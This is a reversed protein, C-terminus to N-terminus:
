HGAPPNKGGTAVFSVCGGENKFGFQVWGGNKCQETSAPLPPVDAVVIDGTLVTGRQLLQTPPSCDSPSRGEASFLELLDPAGSDSNDTARLTLLPPLLSVGISINFVAVNGEVALCTVTGDFIAGAELVVHGTPNEGSPGSRADIQFTTIFSDTTGSGTVSDEPPRPPQADVVVIDGAILDGGIAVLLPSCDAAPRGSTPDATISDTGGSSSDDTVRIAIVDGASTQINFRAVTGDVALCTVTGSFSGAVVSEFSMQGRPNEGSPGSRAEIQFSDFLVAASGSGTVSDETPAQASAIGPLALGAVAVAMLWVTALPPMRRM